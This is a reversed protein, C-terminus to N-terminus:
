DSDKLQIAEHYKAQVYCDDLTVEASNKTNYAALADNIDKAYKLLIKGSDVNTDVWVTKRIVERNDTKTKSIDVVTIEWRYTFKQEKANCGMNDGLTITTTNSAFTLNSWYVNAMKIKTIQDYDDPFNDIWKLPYTNITFTQDPVYVGIPDGCVSAGGWGWSASGGGGAAGLIGGVGAYIYDNAASSDYGGLAKLPYSNCTVDM